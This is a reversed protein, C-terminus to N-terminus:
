MSVTIFIGQSPLEPISWVESMAPEFIHCPLSMQFVKQQKM